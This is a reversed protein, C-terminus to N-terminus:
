YIYINLILCYCYNLFFSVHSMDYRIFRQDCKAPKKSWHTSIIPYHVLVVWSLLLLVVEIEVFLCNSNSLLSSFMIWLQTCFEFFFFFFFVCVCVSFIASILASVVVVWWWFCSGTVTDSDSIDSCFGWFGFRTAERSTKRPRVTATCINKKMWVM